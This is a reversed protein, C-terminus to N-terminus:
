ILFRSNRFLLDASPTASITATFSQNLLPLFTQSSSRVILNPATSQALNLAETGNQAEVVEYGERNLLVRLFNLTEVDDDVILIKYAM